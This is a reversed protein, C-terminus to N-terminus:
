TITLTNTTAGSFKGGNVLNTGNQQWQYSLASLSSVTISFTTASNAANTRNAPQATIAPPSVVTLIANSSTANGNANVVKVSYNGARNTGVNALTYSSVNTGSTPSGAPSNNYYWQFIFPPAGYAKATFTVNGGVAVSQSLPQTAIFPLDSVTLTANSSTVTGYSNSVIVSYVAADSDSIGTITLTDTQFSSSNGGNTLNSGNKQWQYNMPLLNTAVVTFVITSGAYNTRSTPQISIVPPFSLCFVTGNGHIGGATTTGYFSGNSGLTLGAQPFNGNNFNFSVLTTLLGNTTVQFVTGFGSNGGSYGSNGGNYTTGYFNGDNGLTLEAYPRAGNTYDFSILTTLVGNTAMQFVTGGYSLGSIYNGGRSTTGYFNGDNGITLSSEPNAGNTNAFSALTTLVGNTTVRFVTGFSNSGGSYTTGYFDGDNGLTLSSEPNAGNTNAFSALTTLAGSTTVQFVTGFGSNGGQSTTGYFNGDNGSTLESQPQLGNIGTFSVLTTMLGNTAVQFVTGLNNSGGGSTTGYFNGDNGLTLAAYPHAGNTGNFEVLSTLAGNTTIEFVNGLGNTGGSYTTGYFNGDNGQILNGVPSGGNTGAFSCLTQLKQAGILSASALFLFAIM